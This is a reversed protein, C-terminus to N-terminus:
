SGSEDTSRWVYISRSPADRSQDRRVDELDIISHAQLPTLRIELDEATVYYVRSTPTTRAVLEGGAKLAEVARELKSQNAPM